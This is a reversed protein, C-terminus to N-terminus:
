DIPFLTEFHGNLWLHRSSMRNSHAPNPTDMLVLCGLFDSSLYLRPSLMHEQLHLAGLTMLFVQNYEATFFCAMQGLQPALPIDSLAASSTSSTKGPCGM